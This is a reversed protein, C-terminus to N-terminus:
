SRKKFYYDFAFQHPIRTPVNSIWAGTNLALLADNYVICNVEASFHCTCRQEEYESFVGYDKLRLHEPFGDLNKYFPILYDSVMNDYTTFVTDPREKKIDSIMLNNWSTLANEMETSLLHRYFDRVAILKPEVRLRVNPDLLKLDKLYYVVSNLSPVACTYEGYSLLVPWRYPSTTLFLIKDHLHHSNKFLSYSYYISTGGMGYLTVNYNNKLLNVWANNELHKFNENYIIPDTFSDGYIGLTKM